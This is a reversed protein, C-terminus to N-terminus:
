PIQHPPRRSIRVSEAATSHRHHLPIHHAIKPSFANSCQLHQTVPLTTGSYSRWRVDPAMANSATKVCVCTDLRWRRKSSEALGHLPEPLRDRPRTIASSLNSMPIPPISTRSLFSALPRQVLITHIPQCSQPPIAHEGCNSAYRLRHHFPVSSPVPPTSSNNRAQHLRNHPQDNLVIIASIILRPLHQSSHSLPLQGKRM